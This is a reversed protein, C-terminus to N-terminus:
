KNCRVNKGEDGGWEGLGGIYNRVSVFIIGNIKEQGPIRQFVSFYWPEGSSSFSSLSHLRALQTWCWLMVTTLSSQRTLSPPSSPLLM